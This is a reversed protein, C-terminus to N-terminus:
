FLVSYWLWAVLGIGLMNPLVGPRPGQIKVALYVSWIAGAAFLAAPLLKGFSGLPEFLMIGLGLVLSVLAVPAYAYGASAARKWYELKEKPILASSILLILLAGMVAVMTGLMFTAISIFDLWNFTEGAWPYNVMVWWPGSQGILSGYGLDIFANGLFDRYLTYMDSETWYFAGLALGTAGLLFLVEWIDPERKGIEEIERGPRRLKLRLTSESAPNVCRMCAICNSSATKTQTNIFTPCAASTGTGGNKDIGASGLRSFIGLLPGAPCLHRCWARRDKTYIFGTLAALLMTGGLVELAALSYDRVGVLQGLVTIFVFSAFPLGKWRMWGPIPRNLGRKSMFETLAGQPCLLGCWLRGFLVVSLFMLPFWLGWVIFRALLQLNTLATDDDAPFPFFVPIAVLALFVVAMFAHVYGFRARHSVLFGEVKGSLGALPRATSGPTLEIVPDIVPRRCNGAKDAGVPEEATEEKIKMSGQTRM